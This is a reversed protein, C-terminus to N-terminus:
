SVSEGLASLKTHIDRLQDTLEKYDSPMIKLGDEILEMCKMQRIVESVRKACLRVFTEWNERDPAIALVERIELFALDLDAINGAEVLRAVRVLHYNVNALQNNADLSRAKEFYDLARNHDGLDARDRALDTYWKSLRANTMPIDFRGAWRTRIAEKTTKSPRSYTLPNWVVLVAPNLLISEVEM